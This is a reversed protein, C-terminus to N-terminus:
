LRDIMKSDTEEIQKGIEHDYNWSLAQLLM